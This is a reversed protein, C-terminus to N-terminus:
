LANHSFINMGPTNRTPTVIPMNILLICMSILPKPNLCHSPTMFKPRRGQDSLGSDWIRSSIVSSKSTKLLASSAYSAKVNRVSWLILRGPRRRSLSRNKSDTKGLKKQIGECEGGTRSHLNHCRRNGGRKKKLSLCQQLLWLIQGDARGQEPHAFM